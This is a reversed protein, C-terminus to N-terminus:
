NSKGMKAGRYQSVNNRTLSNQRLHGQRQRILKKVKVETSM